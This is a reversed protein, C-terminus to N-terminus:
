IFVAMLCTTGWIWSNRGSWDEETTSKKSRLPFFGIKTVWTHQQQEGRTIGNPAPWILRRWYHTKAAAAQTQEGRSTPPWPDKETKSDHKHWATQTQTKRMTMWGGGLQTQQEKFQNTARSTTGLKNKTRPRVGLKKIGKEGFQNEWQTCCAQVGTGQM